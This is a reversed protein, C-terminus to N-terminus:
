KSDKNPSLWIQLVAKTRAPWERVVSYVEQTGYQALDSTVGTVQLGLKRAVYVARRVHFGQTVVLAPGVKYVDRARLLSEYTNVGKTDLILASEPVGKSLAYLRMARVQMNKPSDVGTLLLKKVKGLKYLTVAVQMRDRLMPSPSGDAYALAGLVIAVNASPAQAPNNVVRGAAARDVILYTALMFFFAILIIAVAGILLRLLWRRKRNKRPM